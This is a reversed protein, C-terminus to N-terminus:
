PVVLVLGHGDCRCIDEVFPFNDTPCLVSHSVALWYLFMRVVMVRSHLTSARKGAGVFHNEGFREVLLQGMPTKMERFLSALVEVWRARTENEEHDPVRLWLLARLPFGHLVQSVRPAGM